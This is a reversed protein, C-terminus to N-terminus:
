LDGIVIRGEWGLGSSSLRPVTKSWWNAAGRFTERSQRIKCMVKLRMNMQRLVALTAVWLATKNQSHNNVVAWPM